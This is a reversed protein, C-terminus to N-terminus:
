VLLEGKMQQRLSHRFTTLSTFNHLSSPLDNWFKTGRYIFSSYFKSRYIRPVNLCLGDSFRTPYSHLPELTNIFKNLEESRELIHMQYFKILTFYKHLCHLPLINFNRYISSLDGEGLLKVVRNQISAVRRMNSVGTGGWVEVCYVIHPLVISNYIIRLIRKPLFSSLKFIIGCARRLKSCLLKIHANFNLREDIHVGLLKVYEEKPKQVAVNRIFLKIDPSSNACTFLLYYTKGINLSLRNSCLWEDLKKLERNLLAESEGLDRGRVSVTTDDAFHTFNLLNSCNCMDNIYISFLLPSLTSGQPVGIAIPKVESDCGSVSVYQHRGCLFSKLWSQSVGRFGLKSLKKLLISHNVTDFAKSFDLFVAVSHDGENLASYLHSTFTLIADNTSSNKKFGFQYPTMIKFKNLFKVIRNYMAKEFVKSLFPLTSIPRYNTPDKLCGKKFLPIVRSTKLCDPFSGEKFSINIINSIPHALIDMVHGLINSPVRDICSKKLKCSKIISMIEYPTTPFSMFSTENGKVYDCPDMASAPIEDDLLGGVSVFHSNFADAVNAPGSSLSGDAATIEVVGEGKSFQTKPKLISNIGRWTDKINGRVTEFKEGYYQKKANKIIFFLSNRYRKYASILTNNNRSEKFLQHKKRICKLLGDTLWPSLYRRQSVWKQKIPFSENYISYLNCLFEECVNSVNCLEENCFYSSIDKIRSRFLALNEESHIRFSVKFKARCDKSILPIMIFFPFHDTIDINFVGRQSKELCNTWCHDIISENTSTVRTPITIKPTFNMSQFIDYFSVESQSPTVNGLDVNFDGVFFANYKTCPIRIDNFFEDNFEALSCEPPRYIGTILKNTNNCKIMVACSEYTNNCKSLELFPYSEIDSRVLVSVGGGRKGSRVTHYSKYGPIDTWRMESNLWTETLVIISFQMDLRNTFLIFEDLNRNVSRINIHIASLMDVNSGGFRTNFDDVEFYTCECNDGDGDNLPEIM